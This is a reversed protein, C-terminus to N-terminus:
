LSHVLDRSKSLVLFLNSVDTALRLVFMPLRNLDPSYKSLLLPLTLLNGDDDIEISFYDLLMEAKSKLLEVVFQALENKPGDSQTWGTQETELSLMALQYLPAPCTLRMYGFSGFNFIIIQYFLEKSLNAINVLYLKTTHQILALSRDICGVFIHDELLSKMVIHEKEDVANRLNKM